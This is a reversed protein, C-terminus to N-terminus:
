TNIIYEFGSKEIDLNHKKLTNSLKQKEIKSFSSWSSHTISVWAEKNKGLNKCFFELSSSDADNTRIMPGNWPWEVSYHHSNYGQNKELWVHYLLFESIYNDTNFFWQSFNTLDDWRKILSQVIDTKLFIPTSLSMTPITPSVQLEKAYMKVTDESMRFVGNRGPVLNNKTPYNGTSWPMVLFNQSDLVLYCNSKIKDSIALKLLQQNDWGRYRSNKNKSWECDFDKKYILQLKHKKYWDKCYTNFLETWEASNKDENVIIIIDHSGKLYKSISQAQLALLPIDRLCTVVVIPKKNFYSLLNFM